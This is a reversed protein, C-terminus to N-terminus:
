IRGKIPPVRDSLVTTVNQLVTETGEFPFKPLTYETSFPKSKQRQRRESVFGAFSHIRGGKRRGSQCTLPSCFSAEKWPFVSNQALPLQWSSFKHPVSLLVCKAERHSVLPLQLLDFFTLTSLHSIIYMNIM